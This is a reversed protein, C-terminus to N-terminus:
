EMIFNTFLVEAVTVDSEKLIKNAHRIIEEKLKKKGGSNLLSGYFFKGQCEILCDMMQAKHEIMVGKVDGTGEAVLVVKAKLYHPTITDALNVTREELEMYYTIKKPETQAQAQPRNKQMVFMVGTGAVLGVLLIVVMMIINKM